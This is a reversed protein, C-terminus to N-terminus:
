PVTCYQDCFKYSNRSTRIVTFVTRTRMHAWGHVCIRKVGWIHARMHARMHVGGEYGLFMHPM